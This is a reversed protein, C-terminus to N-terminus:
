RRGEGQRVKRGSMRAGPTVVLPAFIQPNPLGDVRRACGVVYRGQGQLFHHPGTDRSQNIDLPGHRRALHAIRPVESPGSAVDNHAVYLSGDVGVALDLAAADLDLGFTSSTHASSPPNFDLVAGSASAGYVFFKVGGSTPLIPSALEPTSTFPATWDISGSDTQVRHFAAQLGGSLDIMAVYARGSADTAIGAPRQGGAVPLKTAWTRHPAAPPNVRARGDRTSCNRAMAKPGSVASRCTDPGNSGGGEGLSSRAGCGLLLPASLYAPLLACAVSRAVLM